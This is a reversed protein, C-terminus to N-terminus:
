IKEKRFHKFGYSNLLPSKLSTTESLGSETYEFFVCFDEQFLVYWM